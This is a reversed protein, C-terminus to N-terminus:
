LNTIQFPIWAGSRTRARGFDSAIRFKDSRSILTYTDYPLTAPRDIIFLFFKSMKERSFFAFAGPPPVRTGGGPIDSVVICKKKM